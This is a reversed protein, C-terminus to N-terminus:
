ATCFRQAARIRIPTRRPTSGRRWGRRSGNTPRRRRGRGAPPMSGNRLRRVVHEWREADGAVGGVDLADFALGTERGVTSRRNHCAQCYRSLVTEIEAGAASEAASAAANGPQAFGPPAAGPGALIALLGVAVFFRPGRM